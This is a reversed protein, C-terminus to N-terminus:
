VTFVVVMVIPGGVVRWSQELAPSMAKARVAVLRPTVSMTSSANRPSCFGVRVCVMPEVIVEIANANIRPASSALSMSRSAGSTAVPRIVWIGDSEVIWRRCWSM